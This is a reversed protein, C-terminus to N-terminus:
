GEVNPVRDRPVLQDVLLDYVENPSKFGEKIALLQTRLVDKWVSTKDEQPRTECIADLIYKDVPIRFVQGTPTRVDISAQTTGSVPVLYRVRNNKPDRVAEVQRFEHYGIVELTAIPEDPSNGQKAVIEPMTGRSVGLDMGRLSMLCGIATLVRPNHLKGGPVMELEAIALEILRSRIDPGSCKPCYWCCDSPVECGCGHCSGKTMVVTGYLGEDCARLM